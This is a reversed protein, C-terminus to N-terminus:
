GATALQVFLAVSTALLCLAAAATLRATTRASLPRPIPRASPSPRGWSTRLWAGAIFWYACLCGALGGASSGFELLAIGLGAQLASGVLGLVALALVVLWWVDQAAGGRRTHSMTGM